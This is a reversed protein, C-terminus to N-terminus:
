WCVRVENLSRRETTLESYKERMTDLSIASFLDDACEKVGDKMKNYFSRLNKQIARGSM